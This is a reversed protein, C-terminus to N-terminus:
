RNQESMWETGFNSNENEGFAYPPMRSGPAEGAPKPHDNRVNENNFDSLVDEMKMSDEKQGINHRPSTQDIEQPSKHLRQEPSIIKDEKYVMTNYDKNKWLM